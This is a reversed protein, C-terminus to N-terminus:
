PLKVSSLTFPVEGFSRPTRLRVLLSAGEPIPKFMRVIQYGELVTTGYSRIPSGDPAALDFSFVKKDPDDVKLILDNEGASMFLMEVTRVLTEGLAEAM